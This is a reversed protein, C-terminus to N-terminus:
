TISIFRGARDVASPGPQPHASISGDAGHTRKSITGTEIGLRIERELRDKEQRAAQLLIPFEEDTLPREAMIRMQNLIQQKREYDASQTAVLDRVDQVDSDSMPIM